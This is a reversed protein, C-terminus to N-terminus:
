LGFLLKHKQRPAQVRRPLGSWGPLGHSAAPFLVPTDSDNEDSANDTDINDGSIM